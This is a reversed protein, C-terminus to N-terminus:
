ELNENRSYNLTILKGQQLINIHNSKYYNVQICPIPTKTDTMRVSPYEHRLVSKGLTGPYSPGLKLRQTEAGEKADLPSNNRELASSLLNIIKEM